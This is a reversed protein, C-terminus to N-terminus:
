SQNFLYTFIKMNVEKKSADERSRRWSSISSSDTEHSSNTRRLNVDSSLRNSIDRDSLTSSSSDKSVSDTLDHSKWDTSGIRSSRDTISSTGATVSSDPVDTKKLVENAQQVDELTV